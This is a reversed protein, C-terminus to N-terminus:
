LLQSLLLPYYHLQILLFFVQIAFVLLVLCHRQVVFISLLCLLLKHPIIIPEILFDQVMALINDLSVRFSSVNQMNNNGLSM